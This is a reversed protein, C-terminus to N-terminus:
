LSREAGDAACESCHLRGRKRGGGNPDQNEREIRIWASKRANARARRMAEREESRDLQKWAEVAADFDAKTHYKSRPGIRERASPRPIPPPLPFQEDLDM